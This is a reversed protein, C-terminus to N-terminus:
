ACIFFQSTVFLACWICIIVMHQIFGRLSTYKNYMKIINYKTKIIINIISKPMINVPYFEEKNLRIEYIYRSSMPPLVEHLYFYHPRCYCFTTRGQELFYRRPVRDVIRKIVCDRFFLFLGHM